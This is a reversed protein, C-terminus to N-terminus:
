EHLVFNIASECSHQKRFGSQENILIGNKELFNQLLNKVHLEIIKEHIPLKNIPRYDEPNIPFMVKKIPEIISKKWCIPVIGKKLSYLKLDQCCSM